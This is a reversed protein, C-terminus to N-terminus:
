TTELDRCDQGSCTSMATWIPDYVAQFSTGESTGALNTMQYTDAADVSSFGLADSATMDYLLGTAGATAQWFAYDKMRLEKFSGTISEILLHERWGTPITGDFTPVLSRGDWDEWTAGALDCITAPIDVHSVLAQSNGPTVDPGLAAFPVNVAEEYGRDKEYLDHEGMLYGNDSTYLVYTNTAVDFGNADLSAFIREVADDVDRMEEQHSRQRGTWTTIEGASMGSMSPYTYFPETDFDSSHAPSPHYPRHPSLFSAVIFFPESRVSQADLFDEVETAILDSTYSPPQNYTTTTGYKNFIHQTEPDSYDGVARAHVFWATTDYGPVLETPYEQYGNQFKGFYGCRYGLADLRTAPTDNVAGEDVTERFGTTTNSTIGHNHQYKGSFISARTPTCIPTAAYGMDYDLGPEVLRDFIQPLVTSNWTRRKTQDDTMILLINPQEVQPVIASYLSSFNSQIASTMQGVTTANAIVQRGADALGAGAFLTQFMTDMKASGAALKDTSLVDVRNAGGFETYLETLNANIKPRASTFTDGGPGSQIHQQAM